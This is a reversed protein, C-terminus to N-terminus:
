FASYYFFINVIQDKKLCLCSSSAFWSLGIRKLRKVGQTFCRKLFTRVRIRSSVRGHPWEQVSVCPFEAAMKKVSDYKNKELVNFVFDGVARRDNFVEGFDTFDQYLVRLRAVFLVKGPLDIM